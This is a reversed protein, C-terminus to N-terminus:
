QLVMFVEEKVEEPLEELLLEEEKAQQRTLEKMKADIQENQRDIMELSRKRSAVEQMKKIDHDDM